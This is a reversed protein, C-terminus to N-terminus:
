RHAKARQIPTPINYRATLRCWTVHGRVLARMENRYIDPVTLTPELSQYEHMFDDALDRVVEMSRRVPLGQEASVICVANHYYGFATEKRHSFIDNVAGVHDSLARHAATLTPSDRVDPDLEIGTSIESLNLFAAMAVSDRRHGLYTPLSLHRGSVRDSMERLYSTLYAAMHVKLSAQWEPSRKENTARWLDALAATLPNDWERQEGNIIAHMETLLYHPALTVDDVAKDDFQDDLLFSWILWKTLLALNEPSASPYIHAALLDLGMRHVAPRGGPLGFKKVWQWVPARVAAVHHNRVPPFPLDFALGNM